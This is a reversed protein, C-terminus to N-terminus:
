RSRLAQRYEALERLADAQNPMRDKIIAGSAKNVIAWKRVGCSKVHFSDGPQSGDVVSNDSARDVRDLEYRQVIRIKATSGQAFTVFGYAVWSLDEAVFRVEDPGCHNFKHAVHVFLAPDELEDKTLSPDVVLNHLQFAHVGLKWDTLRIPDLKFAEATATNM